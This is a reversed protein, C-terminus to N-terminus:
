WGFCAASVVHPLQMGGVAEDMSAAILGTEAFVRLADAVEPILHVHEGDFRPEEADSKKNHPAFHRTAVQESLDLLADFTERSHETFRTRKTLSEVDLWEYLLFDLDRRSLLLSPM